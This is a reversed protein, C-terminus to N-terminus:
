GPLPDLIPFYGLEGETDIAGLIETGLSNDVTLELFQARRSLHRGLQWRGVDWEFANTGAFPVSKGHAAAVKAVEILLAPPRAPVSALPHRHDRNGLLNLYFNTAFDSDGFVVLHGGARVVEAVVARSCRAPHAHLPAEGLSMTERSEADGRAILVPADVRVEILVGHSAGSNQIALALLQRLAAGLEESGTIAQAVKGLTAVDLAETGARRVTDFGTGPQAGDAAVLGPPFHTQLSRVKAHAGWRAYHEIAARL